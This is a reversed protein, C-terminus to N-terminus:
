ILEKPAKSPEHAITPQIGAESLRKTVHPYLFVYEEEVNEALGRDIDRLRNLLESFDEKSSFSLMVAAHSPVGADVLNELAKLQLM